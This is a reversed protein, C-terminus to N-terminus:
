KLENEGDDRDLQEFSLKVIAIVFGLQGLVLTASLIKDVLHTVWRCNLFDNLRLKFSSTAIEGYISSFVVIVRKEIREKGRSTRRELNQGFEIILTKAKTERTRISNPKTQRAIIASAM